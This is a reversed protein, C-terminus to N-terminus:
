QAETEQRTDAEFQHDLGKGHSRMASMVLERIVADGHEMTGTDIVNLSRLALDLARVSTTEELLLAHDQSPAGAAETTHLRRDVDPRNTM